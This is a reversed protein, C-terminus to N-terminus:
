DKPIKLIEGAFILDPNWRQPNALMIDVYTCGHEQAIKTLTDGTKVRYKIYSPDPLPNVKSEEETKEVNGGSITSFEKWLSRATEGRKKGSSEKNAPIEDKVGMIYAVQAAGGETNPQQSIDDWAEYYYKRFEWLMFRLQAEVSKQNHGNDACWNKLRTWRSNHWQCLGYSTGSDGTM